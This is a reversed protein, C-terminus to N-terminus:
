NIKELIFRYKEDTTSDTVEVNIDKSLEMTKQMLFLIETAVAIGESIIEDRNDKAFEKAKNFQDETYEYNTEVSVTGTIAKDDITINSEM